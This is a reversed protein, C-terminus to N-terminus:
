LSMFGAAGRTATSEPMEKESFYESFFWFFPIGHFVLTNGQQCPPLSISYITRVDQCRCYNNGSTTSLLLATVLLDKKEIAIAKIIQPSVIPTNKM